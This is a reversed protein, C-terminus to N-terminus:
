HVTLQRRGDGMWSIGFHHIPSTGPLASIFYWINVSVADDCKFELSQAELYTVSKVTQFTGSSVPQLISWEM